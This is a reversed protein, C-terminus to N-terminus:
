KSLIPIFKTDYPSIVSETATKDVEDGLNFFEKLTGIVDTNAYPSKIPKSLRETKAVESKEVRGKFDTSEAGKYDEIAKLHGDFRVMGQNLDDNSLIIGVYPQRDGVVWKNDTWEKTTLELKWENKGHRRIRIPQFDDTVGEGYNLTFYDGKRGKSGYRKPVLEM